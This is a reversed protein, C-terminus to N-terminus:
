LVREEADCQSWEPESFRPLGMEGRSRFRNWAFSLGFESSRRAIARITIRGIQLGVDGNGHAVIEGSALKRIGGFTQSRPPAKFITMGETFGGNRWHGEWFKGSQLCRYGAGAQLIGPLTKQQRILEFERERTKVYADVSTMRNYGASGPPGHNFHVGHQHPYLGTLLSVVSPRCVSSPVYGNAFRASRAALRDLNPTHVRENGM